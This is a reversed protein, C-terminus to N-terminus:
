CGRGPSPQRVVRAHLMGALRMDQVYAVGGTVKGPIDVRPLSTGVIRYTKPDGLGSAPQARVHLSLGAALSGYDLSRGDPAHVFGDRAQLQEVPSASIARRRGGDAVRAGPAAANFMATGSDQMSHSGATFGENPTRGTDATVLEIRRPRSM